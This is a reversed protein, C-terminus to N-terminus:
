EDAVLMSNVVIPSVTVGLLETRSYIIISLLKTKQGLKTVSFTCIPFTILVNVIGLEVDLIVISPKNTLLANPESIIDPTVCVAKVVHTLNVYPYVIIVVAVFKERPSIIRAPSKAPLLL